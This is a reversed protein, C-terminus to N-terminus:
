EPGPVGLNATGGAVYSPASDHLTAMGAGSPDSAGVAAGPLVSEVLGAQEPLLEVTLLTGGQGGSHQDVVSFRDHQIGARVLAEATSRAQGHTAFLRKIVTAM